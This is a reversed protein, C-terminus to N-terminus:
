NKVINSWKVNLVYTKLLRRQFKNITKVAQSPTITWIECNYLFVPEVYARFAKMKTESTLKKNNFIIKLQKAAKIALIKTRKIDEGTDLMSGLYAEGTDLM